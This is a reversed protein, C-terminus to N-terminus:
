QRLLETRVSRYDESWANIALGLLRVMDSIVDSSPWLTQQAITGLWTIWNSELVTAKTEISYTSASRIPLNRNLFTWQIFSGEGNPGQLLTEFFRTTEERMLNGTIPEAWSMPIVGLFSGSLTIDPISSVRATVSSRENVTTVSLMTKWDDIKARVGSHEIELDSEITFGSINPFIRHDFSLDSRLEGLTNVPVILGNQSRLSASILYAKSDVSFRAYELDQNKIKSSARLVGYLNELFDALFPFDRILPETKVQMNLSLMRATPVGKQCSPTAVIEVKLYTELLQMFRPLADRLKQTQNKECSQSFVSLWSSFLAAINQWRLQGFGFDFTVVLDHALDHSPPQDRNSSVALSGSWYGTRTHAMEGPDSFQAAIQYGNRASPVGTLYFVHWGSHRSTSPLLEELRDFRARSLNQFVTRILDATASDMRPKIGLPRLAGELEDLLEVAQIADNETMALFPAWNTPTPEAFAFSGLLLALLLM